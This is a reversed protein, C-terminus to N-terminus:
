RRTCSIWLEMLFSAINDSKKKVLGDTNRKALFKEETARDM